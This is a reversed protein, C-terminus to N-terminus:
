AELLAANALGSLNQPVAETLIRRIVEADTVRRNERQIAIIDKDVLKKLEDVLAAHDREGDLLMLLQRNFEDLTLTEHRANTVQHGATAQLRALASVRPRASIQTTFAAPRARLLVISAGVCRILEDGLRDIDPTAATPEASAVPGDLRARAGKVLDDFAVGHPWREALLSMAAKTIPAGTRLGPGAPVAFEVKDASKYDAVPAASKAASYLVLDKLSPWGVRRNLAIGDHVLLTQRFPRNRLFDMFQETRILDPAIKRLTEEVPPPLNNTLMAPYDSEGLYQLGQDTARQAFQHFYIPENVEELHDHFLYHDGQTRLLEVEQKLMMGYPNNEVPVHQAMFDLVARAQQVQQQPAGFSRAHYLMLDRVMGRMRWGPYTNYSIYAIGQPSLMSKCLSLIREQVDNPVWSFVGHAIIYDFPGTAPDLLMIDAQRLEINTLGLHDIRAQGDAIQRASLDIGVFTSDPMSVAMPLLNGGSACGLELVRCGALPPPTMGFLRAVVAMRDPHSQAFAQSAYPLDDYSNKSASPAAVAAGGNAATTNAAITPTIATM